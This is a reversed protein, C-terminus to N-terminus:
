SRGMQDGQEADEQEVEIQQAVFRLALGFAGFDTPRHGDHQPDVFDTPVEPVRGDALPGKLGHEGQVYTAHQDPQTAEHQYGLIVGDVLEGIEHTDAACQLGQQGGVQADVTERVVSEKLGEERMSQDDGGRYIHRGDFAKAGGPFRDPADEDAHIDVQDDDEEDVQGDAAIVHVHRM